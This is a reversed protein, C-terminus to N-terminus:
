STAITSAYRALVPEPRVTGAGEDVDIAGIARLVRWVAEAEPGTLDCGEVLLDPAEPALLGVHLETLLALSARLRIDRTVGVADVLAIGGGNDLYSKLDELARDLDRGRRLSDVARDILTPWGGTAALVKRATEDTEFWPLDMVRSSWVRLSDVGHRRLRLLRMELEDEIGAALLTTWTGLTREDVLVVGLSSTRGRLRNGLVDAVGRLVDHLSDADIDAAQAFTLRHRARSGAKARGVFWRAYEPDSLPGDARLVEFDEQGGVLTEVAEAVDAAGHAATGIIVRVGDQRAQLDNVQFLNLPSLRYGRAARGKPALAQRFATGDFSRRPAPQRAADILKSEIQQQTGLMRGVHPSHLGYHGRREYLVSLGVMEDLLSEFETRSTDAFGAPWRMECQQRLEDIEFTAEMHDDAALSAVLLAVFRYREDLRITLEFRDAIERTLNPLSLVREIDNKTVAHPPAAPDMSRGSLFKLLEDCVLQILSPQHQTVTLIRNIADDPLRYGLAELPREILRRADRPSLAGVTLSTGFHVLRQNAVDHFRRVSHLGAFVFRIRKGTDERLRRLGNLVRFDNAADANIMRDAEDLLVLLRPSDAREAHRKVRDDLRTDPLQKRSQPLHADLEEAILDLVREPPEYDGVGKDQLDIYCAVVDPRHSARREADRLLASKGLRRGGYVFAVQGDTDLLDDVAERRGYFMEEPVLGSAYPNYPNLGTFPLALRAFCAFSSPRIAAVAAVVALDAILAQSGSAMGRARVALRRRLLMPLAGDYLAITARDTRHEELWSSISGENASGRPIIVVRYRGGTQSGFHPVLAKDSVRAQVHFSRWLAVTPGSGLSAVSLGLLELVARVARVGDPRTSAITPLLSLAEAAAEAADDSRDSRPLEFLTGQERLSKALTRGDDGGGALADPVKPFVQEFLVDITPPAPLPQGREAELAIREATAVDEDDLAKRILELARASADSRPLRSELDIRKLEVHTAAAEDMDGRLRNLRDIRRGTMLSDEHQIRDLQRSLDEWSDPDLAGRQFRLALGSTVSRDLLVASAAAANLLRAVEDELLSRKDDAVFDLAWHALPEDGCEARALAAAEWDPEDALRLLRELDVPDPISLDAELRITPDRLLEGALILATPRSDPEDVQGDLLRLVYDAADRVRARAARTLADDPGTPALDRASRFANGATRLADVQANLWAGDRTPRGERERVAIWRAGLDVVDDIASLLRSRADGDIRKRQTSRLRATSEDVLEEVARRLRFRQVVESVYVAEAANQTQVARLVRGLPADQHMLDRMVQSARQYKVRTPHELLEAARAALASEEAQSSAINWAARAIDHRISIGKEATDQLAALFPELGPVDGVAQRHQDLVVAGSLHPAAATVPIAAALSLLRAAHDFSHEDATAIEEIAISCEVAAPETGTDVARALMLARLAAQRLESVGAAQAVLVALGDRGTTILEPLVAEARARHEDTQHDADSAPREVVHEPLQAEGTARRRGAEEAGEADSDWDGEGTLSAAGFEEDRAAVESVLRQPTSAPQPSSAFGDRRSTVAGEDTEREAADSGGFPGAHTPPPSDEHVSDGPSASADGALGEAPELVSNSDDPAKDPALVMPTAPATTLPGAADAVSELSPPEEGAGAHGDSAPVQRETTEDVGQDVDPLTLKGAAVFAVAAALDPAAALIKSMETADVVGNEAARALTVVRELLELDQRLSEELATIARQRLPALEDREDVSMSALLLAPRRLERLEDAAIIEEVSAGEALGATCAAERARRSFGDLDRLWSPDPPRGDRVSEVCREAAGMAVRQLEVLVASPEPRQDQSM